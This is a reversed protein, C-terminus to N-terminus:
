PKPHKTKVAQRKTEIIELESGVPITIVKMIADIVDAVPPYEQARLEKYTPTPEPDVLTPTFGSEDYSDGYKITDDCAIWEMDSSVPFKNAEIQVVKNKHILAFM